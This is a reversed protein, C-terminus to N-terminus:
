AAHKNAGTASEEAASQMWDPSQALNKGAKSGQEALAAARQQSMMQARQARINDYGNAGKKPRLQDPPMGSNLAYDSNVKDMYFIDLVEPKGNQVQPMLFQFTEETARNKLARLGDTLRNSVQVQPMVLGTKGDGTNRMLSQPARGFKGMRYLIGFGRQALPNLFEPIARGLTPTFDGLQEAQRQSIEFATMKKDLLPMSNLLKFAKTKFADRLQERRQEQMELGMKYDGVTAWERPVGAEGEAGNFITNGGARLDVDGDLSDPTLIRPYAHLEALADMFQQVYNLQRAIPLGLYAPSYGWPAGTGWKDFRRVFAPQEDFGAVRVCDKFDIAVYVSAVPKNAGDQRKPMRETDERPFICHLFKFKKKLGEAGKSQEAMKKPLSEDKFMQCAQRYTLTFERMTTDVVGESDEEIVYTGIKAHRFNLATKKGEECLLFDTGFVGCGLYSLAAMSYFNSRALERMFIDSCKGMWAVAEDGDELELEEPVTFELWPQQPPTLWNYQGTKLTEACEIATTDFIADTWDVVGETKDIQIDSEQPLFYQSIKQWDTMWKSDREAKLADYRKLLEIALPENM